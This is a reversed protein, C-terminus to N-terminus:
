VQSSRWGLVREEQRFASLCETFPGISSFGQTRDLTQHDLGRWSPLGSWSDDAFRARADLSVPTSPRLQAQRLAETKAGGSSHM